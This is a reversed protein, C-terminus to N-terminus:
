RDGACVNLVDRALVLDGTDIAAKASRRCQKQDYGSASQVELQRRLLENHLRLQEIKQSNRQQEQYNPVLDQATSLAQSYGNLPATTAESTCDVTRGDQRVCRTRVQADAPTAALVSIVLGAMALAPPIKLANRGRTRVDSFQGSSGM